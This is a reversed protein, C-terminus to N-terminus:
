CLTHTHSPPRITNVSKEFWRKNSCNKEIHFFAESRCAGAAAGDGVRGTAAATLVPRSIQVDLRHIYSVHRVLLAVHVALVPCTDGPGGCEHVITGTGRVWVINMLLKQVDEFM